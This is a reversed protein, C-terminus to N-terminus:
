YALGFDSIVTGDEYEIKESFTNSTETVYGRLTEIHEKFADYAAHATALDAFELISHYTTALPNWSPGNGWFETNEFISPDNTELWDLIDPRLENKRAILEGWSIFEDYTLTAIPFVGPFLGISGAMKEMAFFHDLSPRTYTQYYKVKM